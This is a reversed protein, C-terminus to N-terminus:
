FIPVYIKQILEQYEEEEISKFTIGGGSRFQYENEKKEIYRILVCSDISKGDYVGAIGTYFGRKDIENIKIIDLTKKKPAGSISGAPLLDFLINGIYDHWDDKLQGSIESSVQLLIKDRTKVQDIYRFKNVQVKTSVKSLDNRILDVITYHEAEEKPNQLIKQEADPIAADITGKMPYSYIHNNNIRIFTEPSFSVFREKWLFKYLSDSAHFVDELSYNMEIKSPFTLNLLFSNGYNIESLCNQFAKSFVEKPVPTKKLDLQKNVEKQECCTIGNSFQYIIESPLEDLPYAHIEELEFDFLFLFPTRSKGM